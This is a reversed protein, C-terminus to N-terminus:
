IIALRNNDQEYQCDVAQVNSKPKYKMTMKHNSYVDQLAAIHKAENKDRQLAFKHEYLIEKSVTLQIPTHITAKNRAKV